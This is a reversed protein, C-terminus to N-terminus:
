FRGSLSLQMGDGDRTPLLSVSTTIERYDEDWEQTFYGGAGLGALIGASVTGAAVRDSLNELFIFYPIAFGLLGGVIGSASIVRIRPRSMPYESALFAGGAGGVLPVILRSAVEAEYSADVQVVGEAIIYYLVTAWFASHNVSAVDGSTPRLSQAIGGGGALGGLQGLMMIGAGMRDGPRDMLSLAQVAMYGGWVTGSNVAATMGPEVGDQTLYISGGLGGLGGLAPLGVGARISDCDILFCFEAGLVIGHITQFIVLEARSLNSSEEMGLRDWRESSEEQETSSLEEESWQAQDGEEAMAPMALLTCIMLLVIPMTRKSNIKM